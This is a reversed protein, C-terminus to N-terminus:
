AIYISFAVEGTVLARRASIAAYEPCADLRTATLTHRSLGRLSESIAKQLKADSLAASTTEYGSEAHGNREL